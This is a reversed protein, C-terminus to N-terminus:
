RANRRLIGRCAHGIHVVNLRYFLTDDFAGLAVQPLLSCANGTIVRVHRGSGPITMRTDARSQDCLHAGLCAQAAADLDGVADIFLTGGAARGFWEDIDGPRVPQEAGVFVEVLPGRSGAARNHILRALALRYAADSATVMVNVLPWKAVDLLAAEDDGDFAHGLGGMFDPTM